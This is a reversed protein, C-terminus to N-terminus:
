VYDGRDFVQDIVGDAVRSPFSPGIKRHTDRITLGYQTKPVTPRADRQSFSIPHKIEGVARGLARLDTGAKSHRDDLRSHIAGARFDPEGERVCPSAVERGAGGAVMLSRAISSRATKIAVIAHPKCLGFRMITAIGVARRLDVSM